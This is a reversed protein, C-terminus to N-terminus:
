GVLHGKITPSAFEFAGAIDRDKFADLQDSIVDDFAAQADLSGAYAGGGAALVLAILREM